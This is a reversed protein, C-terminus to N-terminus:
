GLWWVWAAVHLAVILWFVGMFNGKQWKHRFTRQAVFAGPWGGLFETVHLTSERIRWQGRGARRKDMWYLAFALASM